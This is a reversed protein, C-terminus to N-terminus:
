EHQVQHVTAPLTEVDDVNVPIPPLWRLVATQEGSRPGTWYTAWHARRIHPRPRSRQGAADRESAEREHTRRIAAGIRVGVDWMTPAAAPFLRWGHKTKTPQPQQPWTTGDGIEADDACLYLLLAILPSLRRAGEAFRGGPAHTVLGAEHNDQWEAEVARISQELTGILPVVSVPLHPYPRESDLGLMLERRDEAAVWNIWAYCGHLVSTGGSVLPMTRGPTEVYVCWHPLHTLASVPLEGTLPTDVLATALTPDYRFIGQTVRWAAFAAFACAESAIADPTPQRGHRRWATAVIQGAASLPLFTHRPWEHAHAARVQDVTRWYEARWPQARQWATVREQARHRRPASQVERM